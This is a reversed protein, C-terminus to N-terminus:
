IHADFKAHTRLMFNTVKVFTCVKMAIPLYPRGVCVHFISVGHSM